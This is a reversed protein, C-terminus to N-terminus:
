KHGYTVSVHYKYDTTERVRDFLRHDEIHNGLLILSNMANCLAIGM